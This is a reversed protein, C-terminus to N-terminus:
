SDVIVTGAFDAIQCRTDVSVGFHYGFGQCQSAEIIRDLATALIAPLSRAESVLMTLDLFTTLERTRDAVRQELSARTSGVYYRGDACRLIYVYAAM